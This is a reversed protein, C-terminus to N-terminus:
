RGHLTRTFKMAAPLDLGSLHRDFYDFQARRYACLLEHTLETRRLVLAYRPIDGATLALARQVHSLM